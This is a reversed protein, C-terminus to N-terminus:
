QIGAARDSIDSYARVKPRVKFVPLDMIGESYPPVDMAVRSPVAPIHM